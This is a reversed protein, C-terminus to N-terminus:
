MLTYSRLFQPMPSAAGGTVCSPPQCAQPLSNSHSTPPRRQSAYWVRSLVGLTRRYTEGSSATLFRKCDLGGRFLLIQFASILLAEVSSPGKPPRVCRGLLFVHFGTRTRAHVPDITDFGARGLAARLITGDSGQVRQDRTLQAIRCVWGATTPCGRPKWAPPYVCASCRCQVLRVLFLVHHFDVGRNHFLFGRSVNLYLSAGVIPALWLAQYFWGLNRHIFGRESGSGSQSGHRRSALGVLFEFVWISVLSVGNLLGSKLVNGQIEADSGKAHM